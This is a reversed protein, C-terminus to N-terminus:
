NGHISVGIGLRRKVWRAASSNNSSLRVAGLGISANAAITLVGTGASLLAGLAIGTAGTVAVVGTSALAAAGLAISADGAIFVTAGSSLTAAGFAISADGHVGPGAPAPQSRIVPVAPFTRGLRAM